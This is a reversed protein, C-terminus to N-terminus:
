CCPGQKVAIEEVKADGNAPEAPPNSTPAQEGEKATQLQAEEAAVTSDAAPRVDATPAADVAPAVEIAAADATPAAADATPAAADTASAAADTTPGAADAAPTAADEAPATGGPAPATADATPAAADATPVGAGPEGKPTFLIEKAAILWKDGVLAWTAKCSGTGNDAIWTDQHIAGEVNTVTFQINTGGMTNRLNGLFTACEERTKGTFSGGADVGGNVTVLCEPAYISAAAAMDDGNYSEQMAKMAARVVDEPVSVSADTTVAAKETEPPSTTLLTKTETAKKSTCAGMISAKFFHSPCSVV